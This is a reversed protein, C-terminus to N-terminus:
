LYTVLSSSLERLWRNLTLDIMREGHHGNWILCQSPVAFM